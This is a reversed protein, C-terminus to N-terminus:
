FRAILPPPPLRTGGSSPPPPADGYTISIPSYYAPDQAYWNGYIPTPANQKFTNLNGTTGVRLQVDGDNAAGGFFVFFDEDAITAQSGTFTLEYNTESAPLTATGFTTLQGSDQYYATILVDADDENKFYGSIQSLTSDNLLLGKTSGYTIKLGKKWNPSISLGTTNTATNTWVAM